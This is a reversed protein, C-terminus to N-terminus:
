RAGEERTALVARRVAVELLALKYGNDRLPAAGQLAAKAADRASAEDIARGALVAEAARARWPIPAVAGLVISARTCVVLGGGAGGAGAAGGAREVRVAVEVLPWDYSAKQAEKVYASAAGHPPAPLVVDTLVEDDAKV